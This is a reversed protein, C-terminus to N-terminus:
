CEAYEDDYKRLHTGNLNKVISGEILKGYNNVSFVVPVGIDNGFCRGIQGDRMQTEDSDYNMDQGMM